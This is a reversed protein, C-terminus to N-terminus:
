MDELPRKLTKEVLTFETAFLGAVRDRLISPVMSRGDPSHAYPDPVEGHVFERPLPTSPSNLGILLGVEIDAM